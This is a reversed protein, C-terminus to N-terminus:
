ESPIVTITRRPSIFFKYNNIPDSPDVIMTEDQEFIGRDKIKRYDFTEPINMGGRYGIAGRMKM